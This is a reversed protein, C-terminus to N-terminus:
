IKSKKQVEFAEKSWEKFLNEDELVESPLSYFSLVVANNEFPKLQISGAKKFKNETFDDVKLYVEDNMLMAFALEEQYLAVGGFMKKINVTGWGTLQDLVFKLFSNSVAM